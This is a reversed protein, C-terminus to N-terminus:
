ETTSETADDGDDVAETTAVADDGTAEVNVESEADNNTATVEPGTEDAVKSKFVGLKVAAFVVGGMAIVFLAGLAIWLILNAEDGTLPVGTDAAAALPTLLFLAFVSLRTSYKKM